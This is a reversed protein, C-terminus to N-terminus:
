PTTAKVLAAGVPAAGHQHGKVTFPGVHGLDANLFINVHHDHVQLGAFICELNKVPKVVTIRKGVVLGLGVHLLIEALDAGAVRFGRAVGELIAISFPQPLQHHLGLLVEVGVHLRGTRRLQGRGDQVLDEGVLRDLIKDVTAFADSRLAVARGM